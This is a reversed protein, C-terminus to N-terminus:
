VRFKLSRAWMKAASKAAGLTSANQLNPVENWASALHNAALPGHGPVPLKDNKSDSSRTIMKEALKSMDTKPFLLSGLPDM